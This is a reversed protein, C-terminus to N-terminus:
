CGQPCSGEYQAFHSLFPNIAGWQVVGPLHDNGSLCGHFPRGYGWAKSDWIHAPHVSSDRILRNDLIFKPHTRSLNSINSLNPIFRPYIQFLDLIYEQYM